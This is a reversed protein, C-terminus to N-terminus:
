LRFNRDALVLHHLALGMKPISVKLYGPFWNQHISGYKFYDKITKVDENQYVPYLTLTSDVRPQM